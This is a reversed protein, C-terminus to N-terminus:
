YVLLSCLQLCPTLMPDICLQSLCCCVIVVNGIAISAILPMALRSPCLWRLWWSIGFRKCSSGRLHLSSPQTLWGWLWSAAKNVFAVLANHPHQSYWLLEWVTVIFIALLIDIAVIRACCVCVAINQWCACSDLTMPKICCRCSDDGDAHGICVVVFSCLRRSVYAVCWPVYSRSITCYSDPNVWLTFFQWTLCFSVM